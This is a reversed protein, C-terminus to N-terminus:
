PPPRERSPRNGRPLRLSRPCRARVSSGCLEDLGGALVHRRPADEAAQDCRRPAVELTSEVRHRHHGLEDVFLLKPKAHFGLREDLRGEGNAKVLSAM